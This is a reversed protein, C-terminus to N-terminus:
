QLYKLKEDMVDSMTKAIDNQNYQKAIMVLRQMIGFAQSLDKNYYNLYESDLSIYYDVDENYRDFMDKMLDNGKEFNKASYYVNILPLMYVDYPLKENPFVELCRDALIVASDVKGINILGEAVRIFNNKPIISNRTSERDIYVGDKGINGWKFTNLLLDYSKEVNVGGIGKIYEAAKYPSLKYVFGELHCYKDAAFVDSVSSPNAFYIAREWNNTALLDLLMLDNKYLIKKKITWTIEDVIKDKFQLPVLGSAIVKEKDVTIKVKRTPIYNMERGDQMDLKTSKNDSKVFKIVDKLETYGEIGRDYVLVADNTGKHYKESPLTLPLPDSEYMKHYLQDIYWDGSSLMFNVVRIDTRMGEVEQDYWLPFTDNDGNTFLIANKSCSNLYNGAFDRTIYKDSRDHDDWNESAMITPVLLLGAVTVIVASAKANLVKKLMDFFFLISLGIWIAYAYFSGAYAYDRERPQYPNQNLYVVIALGTMIFLLGVVLTDKPAKKLQYFLGVLGFLLPLFYYKNNAPSQMSRPLNDQDGLRANDIFSIGSVWNGKDIGGHGEIDNQRGVFNWFFYRLYMHGVQYRFFFTLNEGFTPKNIIEGNSAEIPRGHVDGWQKYASIHQPKQNSWMRPFITTFKPDYIPVTSKRDDTIIYKGTKEDKEYVPNKDGYDIVPSNYYQGSFLPTTGYQERNLYSLLSVADEPSNEDIPTDANSRIVIMFFSSYGILLFVFSLLITNLAAKHDRFYYVAYGSIGLVIIRFFVDSGSSSSLLLLLALISLVALLSREVLKNQVNRTYQIGLVLFAIMLLAFFLTGSNFPMGLTNVFLIETKAFLNVIEPIVGYLIFALLIISGIFTIVTGKITANYKKYYYVTAIAPIALLNLLHVGISLGVLYVILILWRDSHPDDAVQEWKLIAWFVLATFFSSMAYVEGEVASFWFSDSFTYALAGVLGSGMIAYIRGKTMEGDTAVIKKALATITWFLFLITLSSSLASMANVMLAVKSTDGFAFLSFFRGLLQFLPAGPPHGVQLKFATAIYEGCDWWSATPELTSFYVFSAILFTGWGLIINIKRYNNM